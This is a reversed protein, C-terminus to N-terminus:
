LLGLELKNCSTSLNYCLPLISLKCCTQPEETQITEPLSLYLIYNKIYQEIIKSSQDEM